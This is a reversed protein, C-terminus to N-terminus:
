KSDENFNERLNSQTQFPGTIMFTVDASINVNSPNIQIELLKYESTVLLPHNDAYTYYAENSLFEGRVTMNSHDISQLSIINWDYISSVKVIHIVYWDLLQGTLNELDITAGNEVTLTYHRSSVYSNQENVYNELNNIRQELQIIIEQLESITPSQIDGSVNLDGEVEMEVALMFSLSLILILKNMMISLLSM